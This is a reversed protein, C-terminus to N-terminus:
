SRTFSTCYICSNQPIQLPRGAWRLLFRVGLTFIRPGFLMKTRHSVELFSKGEVLYNKIRYNLFIKFVGNLPKSFANLKNNKNGQEASCHSVRVDSPFPLRSLANRKTSCFVSQGEKPGCLVRSIGEGLIREYIWINRVWYHSPPLPYGIHLGPIARRHGVNRYLKM